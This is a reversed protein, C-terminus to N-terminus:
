TLLKRNSAKDHNQSVILALNTVNQSTNKLAKKKILTRITSNQPPLLHRAGSRLAM